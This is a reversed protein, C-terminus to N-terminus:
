RIIGGFPYVVTSKGTKRIISRGKEYYANLFQSPVISTNSEMDLKSIPTYLRGGGVIGHVVWFVVPSIKEVPEGDEIVIQKVKCGNVDFDIGMFNSIMFDNM